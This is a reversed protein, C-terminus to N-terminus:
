RPIARAATLLRRARWYMEVRQVVVLGLAFAMALDTIALPDLHLWREGEATALRRLLVIVILFLLAAPSSSQRLAHTESDVVIRMMRGRQWGVAGGLVLAVLCGLWVRGQPPQEILVVAILAAVVAPLIWLRELILPRERGIRRWRFVLVVILVIAPILYSALTSQEIRM